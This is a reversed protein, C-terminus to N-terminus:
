LLDIGWSALFRYKTRLMGLAGDRAWFIRVPEGTSGSTVSWRGAGHQPALMRSPDVRVTERDLPPVLATYEALSAFREPLRFQESLERYHPVRERAVKWVGNLHELQFAEIEGRTWYERRELLPLARYAERFRPLLRLLRPMM